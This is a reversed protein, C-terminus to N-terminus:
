KQPTEESVNESPVAIEDLVDMGSSVVMSYSDSLPRFLYLVTVYCLFFVVAPVADVVIEATQWHWQRNTSLSSRNLGVRLTYITLFIAFAFIAYLIFQLRRYIYFKRTESSNKLYSATSYLHKNLLLLFALTVLLMICLPFKVSFSKAIYSVPSFIFFFWSIGTVLRHEETKLNPFVIRYGFVLLLTGLAILGTFLGALLCLFFGYINTTFIFDKKNVMNYYNWIALFTFTAFWGFMGLLKQIKLNNGRNKILLRNYILTVVLFCASLWGYYSIKKYSSAKLEGTSNIFEVRSEFGTEAVTSFAIACYYGTDEVAYGTEHKGINAQGFTLVRHKLQINQGKSNQVTDKVIITNVDSSSCYGKQIAHNDCIYVREGDENVHGIHEIDDVNFIAVAITPTQSVSYMSKLEFNISSDRSGGIDKRSYMGSCGRPWDEDIDVSYGFAYNSFAVVVYILQFYWNVM